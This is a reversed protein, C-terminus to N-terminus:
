VGNGKVLRKVEAHQYLFEMGDGGVYQLVIRRAILGLFTPKKFVTEKWEPKIQSRQFEYVSSIDYETLNVMSKNFAPNPTVVFVKHGKLSMEKWVAMYMKQHSHAPVPCFFLVKAGNGSKIVLLLLCASLLLILNINM